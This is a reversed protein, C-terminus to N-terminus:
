ARAIPAATAACLTVLDAPRLAIELGRRGASVFVRSLTMASQDIVTPLARRQGLPSIGGVVYGTAREAEAVEALEARKGGSAMALAKLDLERDVPVLAVVLGRDQVKVVLTKFVAAPPLGLLRAAEPGYARTATDHQYTLVEFEVGAREAAQIAPTVDVVM